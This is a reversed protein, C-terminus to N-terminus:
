PDIELFLRPDLNYSEARTGGRPLIAGPDISVEVHVHDKMTVGYRSSIAQATAIVEGPDVYKGRDVLPSVYLIRVRLLKGPTTIEVYKWRPDDGYCTGIKSIRGEIPSRIPSGPEVILDLGYHPRGGRPVGFNGLGLEDNRIKQEPLIRGFQKMERGGRGIITGRDRFAFDVNEVQVVVAAQM